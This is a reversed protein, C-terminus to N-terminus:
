CQAEAKGDTVLQNLDPRVKAGYVAELESYAKCAQGPQGLKMLAKGLYFLSDPAREGKPNKRYNALLVDAAATAKGSDLLSRGVLNNAYSVRRHAPYAATFARLSRIAGDFDGSQWQKFGITYADEGLDDLTLTPVPPGGDLAAAPTAPKPKPQTAPTPVTGSTSPITTANPPVITGEALKRELASLREGSDSRAKALDAQVTRLGNGNEEALRLIDALQRELSDLRQALSAVSSQAAAPDDPFGATDAPRGKPFVQRQMQSIQKELRELRQEPSPAPRQAIASPAASVALALGAVFLSPLRLSTM